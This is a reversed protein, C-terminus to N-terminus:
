TALTGLLGVKKLRREQIARGAADGIHLLPIKIAKQVDEAFIHLTNACLLLCDAGGREIQVAAACLLRSVSPTDGADFLSKLEGFNVSHLLIKASHLGGLRENTMKNLHRYYEQTSEWSTGGILGITKM